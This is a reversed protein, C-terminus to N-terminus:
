RCVWEGSVAECYDPPGRQEWADTFGMLRAVEPYRPHATFGWQRYRVGWAVYYELKPPPGGEGDLIIEFYRDLYGFLLYLCNLKFRTAAVDAEPTVALVAAIREDLAAQGSERTATVLDRIWATDGGDGGVDAEFYAIAAADRRHILHIEGIVWKSWDPDLREAAAVAAQAEEDRGLATLVAYRRRHAISSLPELQVFRKTVALAESLYGAVALKWSLTRLIEPNNPQRRAARGYAELIDAPPNGPDGELYLARAFDLDPDLALAKAASDQVLQGIPSGEPLYDTWYTHALLEYAEAFNPDLTVAQRLAATATQVDSVHLALRAKLFLAYADANQTPRGRAPYAGIQIRLADIIASAVDDQLAFLDTMTRDYSESWIDSGDSVDILRATIRVRDASQRVSGELIAGVGLAHGVAQPGQSTDRLSFASTRGIVKLDAVEALLNRIEESLGDSFYDNSPDGSLNTFPLVAVSPGRDDFRTVPPGFNEARDNGRGLWVAAIVVAIVLFTSAALAARYRMAPVAPVAPPPPERERAAVIQRRRTWRFASRPLVDLPQEADNAGITEAWSQPPSTDASLAGASAAAIRLPYIFRYGLRPLTEIFHPAAASDGLAERLRAIANNLGHDFDVFVSSPWLKERLEKRTVVEGARELLLALVQFPQEQLRIRIGQKRLERARRDVEFVGFQFLQPGDISAVV